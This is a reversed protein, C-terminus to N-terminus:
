GPNMDRAIEALLAEPAGLFAFHDGDLLTYRCDASCEKWGGMLPMPIERDDTWGIVTIGCPLRPPEPVIYRKNAEIDDVLLDLGLELLPGSPRGGLNTILEVLEDSLGARDLELLRGYPGDQPAVQSSIFLRRPLPLGGAALQRTVEAGPLAGGCHGFFAFPKDLYPPLFELLASALREYTEYHPERIRNQRAPPQILCVEVGGIRRPWEQYM